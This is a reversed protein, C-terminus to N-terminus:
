EFRFFISEALFSACFSPCLCLVVFHVVIVRLFIASISDSTWVVSLVIWIGQSRTINMFDPLFFHLLAWSSPSREPLVSFYYPGIRSLVRNSPAHISDSSLYQPRTSFNLQQFWIIPWHKLLLQFGICALFWAFLFELFFICYIFDFSSVLYFIFCAHFSTSLSLGNRRFSFPIDVFQAKMPKWDMSTSRFYFVKPRIIFTFHFTRWLGFSIIVRHLRCAFIQLHLGEWILGYSWWFLLLSNFHNSVSCCFIM